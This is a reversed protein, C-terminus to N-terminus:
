DCAPPSARTRTAAATGIFLWFPAHPAFQDTIYRLQLQLRATSLLRHRGVMCGDCGRRRTTEGRQVQLPHLVRSCPHPPRVLPRHFRPSRAQLVRLKIRFAAYMYVTAIGVTIAAAFLGRDWLTGAVVLGAHNHLAALTIRCNASFTVSFIMTTALFTRDALM